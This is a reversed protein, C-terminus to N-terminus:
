SVADNPDNLLAKIIQKIGISAGNTMLIDNHNINANISEIGDRKM